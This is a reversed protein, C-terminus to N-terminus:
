AKKKELLECDKLCLRRFKLLSRPNIADGEPAM